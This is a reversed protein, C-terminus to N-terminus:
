SNDIIIDNWSTFSCFLNITRYKTLRVSYMVSVYVRDWRRLWSKHKPPAGPRHWGTCKAHDGPASWIRHPPTASINWSRWPSSPYYWVNGSASGTRTPPPTTASNKKEPPQLYLDIFNGWNVFIKKCKRSVQLDGRMEPSERSNRCVKCTQKCMWLVYCCLNM